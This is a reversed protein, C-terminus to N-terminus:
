LDRRRGVTRVGLGAGGGADRASGKALTYAPGSALVGVRRTAGALICRAALGAPAGLRGTATAVGATGALVDAERVLDWGRGIGNASCRADGISAHFRVCM